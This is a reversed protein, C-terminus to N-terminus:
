GSVSSGAVRPSTLIATSRVCVFTISATDAPAESPVISAMLTAAISIANRANM